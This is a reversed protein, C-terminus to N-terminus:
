PSLYDLLILVISFIGILLFMMNNHSDTRKITLALEDETQQVQQVADLGANHVDQVAESQSQLIQLFETIMSSIKSVNKELTIAEELEESFKERLSRNEHFLVERQRTAVMEYEKMKSVSAVEASYRDGIANVQSNSNEKSKPEPIHNNTLTNLIKAQRSSSSLLKSSNLKGYKSANKQM